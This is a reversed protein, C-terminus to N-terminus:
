YERRLDLGWGKQVGREGKGIPKPNEFTEGERRPCLVITQEFEWGARLPEVKKCKGQL